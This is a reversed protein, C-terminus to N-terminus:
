KSISKSAVLLLGDLELPSEFDELKARLLGLLKEHLEERKEEGLGEMYSRRNPATYLTEAYEEADQEYYVAPQYWAMIRKFGTKRVLDKLVEMEGLYFNSRVEPVPLGLLGCAQNFCTLAFSCHPRGWVSVAIKGGDECVRHMESLMIEPNPVLNLNMGAMVRDFSNDEFPLEQNNAVRFDVGEPIRKKACNLMATSLDCATLSCASNGEDQLRRLLALTGNGPGCGLELVKNADKIHLMHVLAHNFLGMTYSLRAEYSPSFTNWFTQLENITKVSM